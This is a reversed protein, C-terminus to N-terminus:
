KTSLNLRSGLACLQRYLGYGTPGAEYCFCLRDHRVALKDVLKRVADARNAIEGYYRVEGNRESDALGVAIKAKSVDLGVYVTTDNEM